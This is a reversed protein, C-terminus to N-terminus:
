LSVRLQRGTKLVSKKTLGNLKCLQQVTIGYQSAVKYPYDGKKVTHYVLGQPRVTFGNKTKKVVVAESVLEKKELNIVYKPNVPIGKFRLEFHLHSGRSRGTNGGLGILQGPDVIDGPKVDIRSLHAYFTEFGNYHRIVVLNGFSSSYKAVRVMGVFAAVVTDGTELDVDIGNHMKGDRPGFTSTIIGNAPMVFGCFNMSDTLDFNFSTDNVSLNPSYCNPHETDWFSYLEHAPYPTTDIPLQYFAQTALLKKNLADLVRTSISDSELVSDIMSVLRARSFETKQIYSVFADEANGENGSNENGSTNSSFLLLGLVFAINLFLIKM